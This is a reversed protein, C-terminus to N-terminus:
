SQRSYRSRKCPGNRTLTRIPQMVLGTGADNGKRRLWPHQAAVFRVPARLVLMFESPNRAVTSSWGPLHFSSRWTMRLAHVASTDLSARAPYLDDNVEM